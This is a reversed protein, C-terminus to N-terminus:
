GRSSNAFSSNSSLLSMGELQELGKYSQLVGQITMTQQRFVIFVLKASMRRLTHIRARFSIIKGEMEVCNTSGMDVVGPSKSLLDLDKFLIRNEHNWRNSMNMSYPRYLKTLEPPGEQIFKEDEIRAMSERKKTEAKLREKDMSRRIKDAQIIERSQRKNEGNTPTSSGNGNLVPTNIGSNKDPTDSDTSNNSSTNIEKLKKFPKKLFSM